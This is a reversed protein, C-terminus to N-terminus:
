QVKRDELAGSANLAALVRDRAAPRCIVLEHNRPDRQNYVHETGDLRCVHWGLSRAITEPACTDWEKLGVKHVYMDADGGLLMCAKYGASGSPTLDGDMADAFREVWDPTHSRSVAIRPRAPSDSDGSVLPLGDGGEIGARLAGDQAIGYFVRGESPLAVAGLVCRGDVALAVHVGWDSRLQAYEKTGDLPDVIWVRSRGLRDPTDITEESLIGDDPYRGAILGHLYGDCAQDCVDGLTKGEWRDLARLSLGRAGAERAAHVAFALDRELTAADLTSSVM